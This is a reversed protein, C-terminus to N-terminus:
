NMKGDEKSIIWASFQILFAEAAVGALWFLPSLAVLHQSTNTSSSPHFRRGICHAENICMHPM